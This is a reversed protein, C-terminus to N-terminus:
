MDKETKMVVIVKEAKNFPFKMSEMGSSNEVHFEPPFTRAPSEHVRPANQQSHTALPFSLGLLLLLISLVDVIMM